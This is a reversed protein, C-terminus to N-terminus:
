CLFAGVAMGTLWSKVYARLGDIAASVKARFEDPDSRTRRAFGVFDLAPGIGLGLVVGQSHGWRVREGTWAVNNRRLMLELMVVVYARGALRGATTPRRAGEEPYLTVASAFGELRAYLKRCSRPLLLGVHDLQHALAWLVQLALMCRLVPNTASVNAGLVVLVTHKNCEPTDGLSPVVALIYLYYAYLASFTGFVLGNKIRRRFGGTSSPPYLFEIGMGVLQLLHLVFFAHFADLRNATQFAMLM